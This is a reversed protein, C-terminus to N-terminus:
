RCATLRDCADASLKEICVRADGVVGIVVVAALRATAALRAPALGDAAVQHAHV